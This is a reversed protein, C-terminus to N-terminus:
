AASIKAAIKGLEEVSTGELTELGTKLERDRVDLADDFRDVDDESMVRTEGWECSPCNVYGFWLGDQILEYDSVQLLRKGCDPCADLDRNQNQNPDQEYGEGPM